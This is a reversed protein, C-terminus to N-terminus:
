WNNGSKVTLLSSSDGATANELQSSKGSKQSYVSKYSLQNIERPYSESKSLSRHFEKSNSKTSINEYVPIYSSVNESNRNEIVPVFNGDSETQNVSSYDNTPFDIDTGSSDIFEISGHSVNFGLHLDSLAAKDKPSDVKSSPLIDTPEQPLVEEPVNSTLPSDIPIVSNTQCETLTPVPNKDSHRETKDKEIESSVKSSQASGKTSDSATVVSTETLHPASETKVIWRQDNAFSSKAYKTTTFDQGQQSPHNEILRSATDAM